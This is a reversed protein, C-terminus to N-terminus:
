SQPWGLLEAALALTLARLRQADMADIEAALTLECGDMHALLITVVDDVPCDRNSSDM